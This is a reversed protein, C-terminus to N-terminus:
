LINSLMMYGPAAYGSTVVVATFTMIIDCVVGKKSYVGQHASISITADWRNRTFKWSGSVTYHDTANKYRMVSRLEMILDHEEYNRSWILFIYSTWNYWTLQIHNIVDIDLLTIRITHCLAIDQHLVLNEVPAALDPRKRECCICQSRPSGDLVFCCVMEKIHLILNNFAKFM